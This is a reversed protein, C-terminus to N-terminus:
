GGFIQLSESFCSIIWYQCFKKRQKQHLWFYTLFVILCGSSQSKQLFMYKWHKKNKCCLSIMQLVNGNCWAWFSNGYLFSVHLKFSCMWNRNKCTKFSFLKYVPLMICQYIPVRECLYLFMTRYLFIQTVYVLMM